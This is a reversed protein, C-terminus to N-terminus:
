DPAVANPDVPPTAAVYPVSADVSLGVVAVHAVKALAAIGDIYGESDAGAPISTRLDNLDNNLEPMRASDAALQAVVQTSAAIQAETEVRQQDAKSAAELQPQAVLFFGFVPILLMVLISTLSIIRHMQM